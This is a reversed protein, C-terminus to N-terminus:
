VDGAAVQQAAARGHRDVMEIRIVAEPSVSMGTYLDVDWQHADPNVSRHYSSVWTRGWANQCFTQVEAVNLSCEVIMPEGISGLIAEIEADRSLPMYIVEGGYHALLDEAGMKPYAVRTLNFWVRNDRIRCQEHNFYSSWGALLRSRQEGTFLHGFRGLFENRRDEGAKAVLGESELKEKESRTYHVGVIGDSRCINDLECVIQNIEEVELFQESFELERFLADHAKLRSLVEAPVESANALNRPNIPVLSSV